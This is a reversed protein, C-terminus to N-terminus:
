LGEAHDSAAPTQRGLGSTRVDPRYRFLDTTLSKGPGLLVTETIGELFLALCCIITSIALANWPGRLAFAMAMSLNRFYMFAYIVTGVLGVNLLM